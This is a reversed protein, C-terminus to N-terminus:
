YSLYRAALPTLFIRVVATAKVMKYQDRSLETKM